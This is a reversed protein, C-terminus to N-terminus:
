FFVSQIYFTTFYQNQQPSITFHKKLFKGNKKLIFSNKKDNRGFPSIVSTVRCLNSVKRPPAELTIEGKPRFSLFHSHCSQPIVSDFVFIQAFWNLDADDTLWEM